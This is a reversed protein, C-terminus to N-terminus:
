QIMLRIRDLDLDMIWIDANQGRTSNFAIRQGEPSWCPGENHADASIALPLTKGGKAPMIYLGLYNDVMAAYVLWAGDPSLALHRYFNEHHGKIQIKEKGEAAFKWLTSRRTERDMLAVLVYKGDPTWGGPMPLMGEEKYLIRLEGSEPHIVYLSGTSGEMFAIQKSDPSWHPLGGNRIHISSPLFERPEGGEALIIKINTGTDADFVVRLGDPSCKPHEAIGSLIQVAGSGDARVSWLGNKGERDERETYQYIIKSGDPSWSAFGERGAERTLRRAEFLDQASLPNDCFGALIILLLLNKM